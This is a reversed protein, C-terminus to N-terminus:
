QNTVKILLKKYYIIIILLVISFILVLFWLSILSISQINGKSLKYICAIGMMLFFFLATVIGHVSLCKRYISSKKNIVIYLISYALRVFGCLGYAIFLWDWPFHPILGTIIRFILTIPLCSYLICSGIFLCKVIKRENNQSMKYKLMISKVISFGIFFITPALTFSTPITFIMIFHYIGIILNSIIGAIPIINFNIIFQHLKNFM